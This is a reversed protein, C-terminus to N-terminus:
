NLFTIYLIVGELYGAMRKRIFALANKIHYKVTNVSIGLEHAIEENNKNKQRSRKFVERCEPPLEEVCRCLLEELEQQLLIGLPQTNEKFIAELFDANERPTIATFNSMTRHRFSRLENICRNRVAQMLYSRLSLIDPLQRRHEWLHFITDDVIEESVAADHLIQNSFRCLLIYHHEYIYKFAKEDGERLRQILLEDKM